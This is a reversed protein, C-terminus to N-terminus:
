HMLSSQSHRYKRNQQKMAANNYFEEIMAIFANHFEFGVALSKQYRKEARATVVYIKVSCKRMSYALNMDGLITKSGSFPM